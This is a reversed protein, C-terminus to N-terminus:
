NISFLEQTKYTQEQPNLNIVKLHDHRDTLAKAEEYYKFVKAESFVNTYKVFLKTVKRVYVAEPYKTNLVIFKDKSPTINLGSLLFQEFEKTQRAQQIPCDKSYKSYRWNYKKYEETHRLREVAKSWKNQNGEQLNGNEYEKLLSLNLAEMGEEQLLKTFYNNKRETFDKPFVNNSDCSLFVENNEIRIRKVIEYSM